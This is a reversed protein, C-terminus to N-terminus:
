AEYPIHKAINYLIGSAALTCLLSSGGYSIFPLTIGKTPLLGCAASIHFLAQLIVLTGIGFALFSGFPESIDQSIKIAEKFYLFFLFLFFLSFIGLEEAIIAFISDTHAEPLFLKRKSNGFGVGLVGGWGLAILSQSIHYTIGQPDAWPKLFALIRNRRYPIKAILFYIIPLSLIFGGGLYLIRIGGIFLLFGSIVAILLATGLDRGLLILLIISIIIISVPLIGNKWENIIKKKRALYDSLYILLSIKVLESPQFSLGGIRIWRSAGKVKHGSPLIAFILLLISFLLLPKSLKQLKKYDYKGFFFFLLSGLFAWILEKKLFYFSDNYRKFAYTASTDYVFVIGAIVLIVSILFIRHSAELRERLYM